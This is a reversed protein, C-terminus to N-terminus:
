PRLWPVWPFAALRLSQLVMGHLPNNDDRATERAKGEALEPALRAAPSGGMLIQKSWAWLARIEAAAIGEPAFESVGLGAALSDMHDNRLAIYPLALMGVENLATAARTPRQGRVPAQNLVFAFGRDFRSIAKLTPHAAEIDALSPRAPILCLDGLRIAETVIESDNGPTDIIALTGGKRELNRLERELQFRNAIREVVPEPNSRRTSWKSITGQLDTELIFVHEGDAIAAVALGIALTSKGTGGKQSAFTITRM